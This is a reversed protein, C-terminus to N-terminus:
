KPVLIQCKNYVPSLWFNQCNQGCGWGELLSCSEMVEWIKPKDAQNTITDVRVKELIEVRRKIHVLGLDMHCRTDLGITHM